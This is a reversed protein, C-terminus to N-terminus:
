KTAPDGRNIDTDTVGVPVERFALAGWCNNECGAVRAGNLVTKLTVRSPRNRSWSAGLGLVPEADGKTAVAFGVAPDVLLALVIEIM